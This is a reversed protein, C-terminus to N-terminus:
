IHEMYHTILKNEEGLLYYKASSYFYDEPLNCLGKRIPNHHIYDLKQELVKRNNM